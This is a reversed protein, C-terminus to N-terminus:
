QAGADVIRKRRHVLIVEDISLWRQWSMCVDPFDAFVQLGLVASSSILDPYKSCISYAIRSRVAAITAWECAMHDM